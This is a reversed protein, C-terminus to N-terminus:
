QMLCIDSVHVFRPPSGSPRVAKTRTRQYEHQEDEEDRSQNAPSRTDPRARQESDGQGPQQQVPSLAPPADPGSSCLCRSDYRPSQPGPAFMVSAFGLVEGFAMLNRNPPKAPYTSCSSATM